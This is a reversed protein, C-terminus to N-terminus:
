FNSYEYKHDNSDIFTMHWSADILSLFEDLDIEMPRHSVAGM